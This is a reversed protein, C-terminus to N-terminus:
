GSPWHPPKLRTVLTDNELDSVHNLLSRFGLGEKDAASAKGVLGCTIIIIIIIIILTNRSCFEM